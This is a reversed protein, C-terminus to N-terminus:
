YQTAGWHRDPCPLTALTDHSATGIYTGIHRVNDPTPEM